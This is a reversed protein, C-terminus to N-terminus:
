TEEPVLRPTRSGLRVSVADLHLGGKVKEAQTSHCKYCHNALVPRVKNEFFELQARTPEAAFASTANLILAAGALKVAGFWKL